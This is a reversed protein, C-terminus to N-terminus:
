KLMFGCNEEFLKWQRRLLEAPRFRFHVAERTQETIKYYEAPIVGSVWIIDGKAELVPLCHRLHSPIKKDSFIDQLKKPNKMGLPVMRDGEQWFRVIIKSPLSQKDLFAEWPSINKLDAPIERALEAEVISGDKLIVKGPISLEFVYNNQEKKKEEKQLVLYGAKVEASIKQPLTIKGYNKLLKVTKESSIYDLNYFSSTLYRYCFSIVRYILAEPEAKLKAANLIIKDATELELCREYAKKTEEELFSDERAASFALHGLAEKIKPNYEKELYPLLEYRIKNRRFKKDVNSSDVCYELNHEQCYAEIEWRYIKLLPRIIRGNQLPIGRLGRIGSGRLLNFLVSECLDNANHGLAIKDYGLDATLEFLFAYRVSRAVEELSGKEKEKLALVDAKKITLPVDWKRCLKDVFETEADAEKRIGHNLHAVHIELNYLDKFQLLLYLLVVSDPGGSVAVVVKNEKQLLGYEEIVERVEELMEDGIV